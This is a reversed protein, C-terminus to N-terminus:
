VASLTDGTQKITNDDYTTSKFNPAAVLSSKNSEIGSMSESKHQIALIRLPVTNQKTSNSERTSTTNQSSFALSIRIIVMYFTLAITPVLMDQVIFIAPSQRAFLIINIMLMFSYLLGAEISISMLPLLRSKTIRIQSTNEHVRWTRYALLGTSLFNTILTFAYFSNSIM